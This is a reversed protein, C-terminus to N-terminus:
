GTEIATLLYEATVAAADNNTIVMITPTRPLAILTPPIEINGAAGIIQHFIDTGVGFVGTPVPQLEFNVGNTSAGTVHARFIAEGCFLGNLFTKSTGAPININYQRGIQMSQDSSQANTFTPVAPSTNTNTNWFWSSRAGIRGVGALQLGNVTCAVSDQNNIKVQLFAGHMRGGGYVVLPGNPDGNTGMPLHWVEKAIPNQNRPVQDFDFWLLTVAVWPNTSGIGATLEIAIEYSLMDSQALGGIPSPTVPAVTVTTTPNITFPVEPISQLTDFWRQFYGERFDPVITPDQGIPSAIDGTGDATCLGDFYIVDGIQRNAQLEGQMVALVSNVPDDAMYNRCDQATVGSGVKCGVENLAFPVNVIHAIQLISENNADTSTLLLGQHWSNTYWDMALGAYTVGTAPNGHRGFAANAYDTARHIQGTYNVNIFLPYISANVTPGYTKLMNGYDTPSVGKSTNGPEQWLVIQATTATFGLAGLSNPGGALMAALSAKDAIAANKQATTGVLTFDSGAPLGFTIVPQLCVIVKTGKAAYSAMNNRTVQTGWESVNWFKKTVTLNGTSSSRGVATIFRQDGVDFQGPIDSNYCTAQYSNSPISGGVLGGSVSPPVASVSYLLAPPSNISIGQQAIAAAIADAVGVEIMAEAIAAPGASFVTAGPAVILPGTPEGDSVVYWTVNGPLAIFGLPDVPISNQDGAAASASQSLYMEAQTDTNEFGVSGSYNPIGSWCITAQATVPFQNPPATPTTM